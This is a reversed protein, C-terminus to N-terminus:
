AMESNYPIHLRTIDQMYLAQSCSLFSRLLSSPATYMISPKPAWANGPSTETIFIRLLLNLLDGQSTEKLDELSVVEASPLPGCAASISNHM